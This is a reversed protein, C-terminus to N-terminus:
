KHWLRFKPAPKEDTRLQAELQDAQALKARDGTKLAEDRLRDIEALQQIRVRDTTSVTQVRAQSKGRNRSFLGLLGVKRTTVTQGDRPLRMQDRHEGFLGFANLNIRNDGLGPLGFATANMSLEDEGGLTMTHMLPEDDLSTATMVAQDDSVLGSSASVIESAPDVVPVDLRPEVVATIEVVAEVPAVGDSALGQSGMLGAVVLSWAMRKM